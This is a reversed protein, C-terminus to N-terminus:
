EQAATAAAEYAALADDYQAKLTALNEEGAAIIEELQAIQAKVLEISNELNTTDSALNNKANEIAENYNEIQQNLDDIRQTIQALDWNNNQLNMLTNAQTNIDEIAQVAENWAELAAEQNDYATAYATAAKLYDAVSFSQFDELDQTYENLTAQCSATNDKAQAIALDPNDIAYQLDALDQQKQYYAQWAASIAPQDENWYKDWAANNEEYYTDWAENVNDIYESYAANYIDEANEQGWDFATAFENWATNLADITEIRKQEPLNVLSEADDQLKNAYAQADAIAKEAAAISAEPNAILKPLDAEKQQAVKLAEKADAVRSTLNATVTTIAVESFRLKSYYNLNWISNGEPNNFLTNSNWLPNGNYIYKRPYTDINESNQWDILDGWYNGPWSAIQQAKDLLQNQEWIANISEQIPDNSALLAKWEKSDAFANKETTYQNKLEDIKKQLEAPTYQLLESNNLIELEAEADAINKTNIAIINECMDQATVIGAEYGVLQQNLGILDLRDQNLAQLAYIYTQYRNQVQQALAALKANDEDSIQNQLAAIQQELELLQKEAQLRAIELENALQEQAAQLALQAQQLAVQAQENRLKAAENALQQAELNAQAMAKDAETQAQMAAAQAQTLEAQARTLEAQAKQAEALAEQYAAMSEKYAAEAEVQAKLANAQIIAAEAEAKALTAQAEYWESKSNRVQTVSPSETGDVCSALPLVAALAVTWLIKKM